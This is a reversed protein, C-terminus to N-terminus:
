PSEEGILEEYIYLILDQPKISLRLHQNSIQKQKQKEVTIKPSFQFQLVQIARESAQKLTTMDLHRLAPLDIQMPTAPKQISIKYDIHELCTLDDDDDIKQKFAKVHEPTLQKMIQIFAADFIAKMEYPSHCNYLNIVREMDMDQIPYCGQALGKNFFEEALCEQYETLKHVLGRISCVTLGFVESYARVFNIGDKKMFYKGDEKPPLNKLIQFIVGNFLIHFVAKVQDGDIREFSYVYDYCYRFLFLVDDLAATQQEPMNKLLQELLNKMMNFFIDPPLFDFNEKTKWFIDKAKWIHLVPDQMYANFLWEAVKFSPQREKIAESEAEPDYLPIYNYFNVIHFKTCHDGIERIKDLKDQQHQHLVLSAALQGLLDKHVPLFERKLRKKHLEEVLRTFAEDVYPVNDKEDVEETVVCFFKLLFDSMEPYHDHKIQLFLDAVMSWKGNSILSLLQNELSTDNFYDGLNPVKILDKQLEEEYHKIHNLFKSLKSKPDKDHAQISLMVVIQLVYKHHVPWKTPNFSTLAPTMVELVAPRKSIKPLNIVVDCTKVLNELVMELSFHPSKMIYNTVHPLYRPAKAEHQLFFTWLFMLENKALSLGSILSYHFVSWSLNMALEAHGPPIQAIIEVFLILMDRIRAVEPREGHEIMFNQDFTQKPFVEEFDGFIKRVSAYVNYHSNAMPLVKIDNLLRLALETYDMKTGEKSICANMIHYMSLLRQIKPTSSKLWGPLKADDPHRIIEYLDFRQALDVEHVMDCPSTCSGITLHQICIRAAGFQYIKELLPHQNQVYEVNRQVPPPPASVEMEEVAEQALAENAPEPVDNDKDISKNAQDEDSSSGFSEHHNLELSDIDEQNDVNAECEAVPTSRPPPEVEVPKGKKPIKFPKKSFPTPIRHGKKAIPRPDFKPKVPLADLKTSSAASNFFGDPCQPNLRAISKPTELSTNLADKEDESSIHTVEARSKKSSTTSGESSSSVTRTRKRSRTPRKKVNKKTTKKDVNPPVLKVISCENDSDEVEGEELDSDKRAPSLPGDSQPITEDKDLVPM